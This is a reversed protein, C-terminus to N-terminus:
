KGHVRKHCEPCLPQLDSLHHLEAGHHSYTIHHVQLAKSKKGCLACRYHAAQRISHAIIKWYWTSLFDEYPLQNIVAWVRERDYWKGEVLYKKTFEAAEHRTPLTTTPTLYKKIFFDTEHDTRGYAWSLLEGAKSKNGKAAILALLLAIARIEKM